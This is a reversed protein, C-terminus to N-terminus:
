LRLETIGYREKMFKCVWEPHSKPIQFIGREAKTEYFQEIDRIYTKMLEAIDMNPVEGGFLNARKHAYEIDAKLKTNFVLEMSGAYVYVIALIKACTDASIAPIDAQRCSELWQAYFSPHQKTPTEM